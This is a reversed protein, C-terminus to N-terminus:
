SPLPMSLADRLRRALGAKRYPKQLVLAAGQLHGSATLTEMAYGSTLLVRLEPRTKRALSAWM